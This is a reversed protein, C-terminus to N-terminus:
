FDTTKNKKPLTIIFSTGKGEASEVKISGRHAKIVGQVITLGIGWGASTSETKKSRKFQQFLIAQEEMPIPNGENHIELVASNEDQNISILVPRGIAGYKIANNVLNELVRRLSERNWKGWCEKDSKVRVIDKFALNIEEAVERAVESLDCKEFEVSLSEGARLRSADLLDRIMKDLRDMMLSIRNAQKMCNELNEPSRLLMQASTKAATIPGRLDHALTHTFKQQIEKLSDSFETSADNVAQEIACIIVEREVPSLDREKELVDFIVQRLIHYEFILQDLTYNFSSARERGHIKGLWLSRDRDAIERAKTRDITESLADALHAIFEPLTNRLALTEKLMAAEVEKVTRAEWQNMIESSNRVLLDSAKPM